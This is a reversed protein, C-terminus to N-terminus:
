RNYFNKIKKTIRFMRQRVANSKMNQIEAIEEMSKGDIYVLELLERQEDSLTALTKEKAANEEKAMLIDFPDSGKAEIDVGMDQLLSLSDHRRTNKWHNRKEMTVMQEHAAYLSDEVEIESITGDCFEYRITKM